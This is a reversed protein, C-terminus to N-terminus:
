AASALHRAQLLLQRGIGCRELRAAHLLNRAELRLTLFLNRAELRLAHFLNRAQLALERLVHRLYLPAQRLLHRRHARQEFGFVGAAEHLRLPDQPPPRAHREFPAEIGPTLVRDAVGRKLCAGDLNHVFPEFAPHGLRERRPAGLAGLPLRVRVDEALRHHPDLVAGVHAAEVCPVREAAVVAVLYQRPHHPTDLVLSDGGGEGRPGLVDRSRALAAVAEHFERRPVVSLLFFVRHKNQELLRRERERRLLAVAESLHM